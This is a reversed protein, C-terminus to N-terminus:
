IIIKKILIILIIVILILTIIFIVITFMFYPYFRKFTYSIVPDLVKIQIQKINEPNNMNEMIKGFIVKNIEEIM